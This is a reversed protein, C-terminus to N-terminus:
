KKEEFLKAVALEVPLEPIFSKSVATSADLLAVLVESLKLNKNIPFNQLFLFDEGGLLIM